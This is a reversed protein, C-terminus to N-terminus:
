ARLVRLPLEPLLADFEARVANQEGMLEVHHGSRLHIHVNCTAQPDASACDYFGAGTNPAIELRVQPSSASMRVWDEYRLPTADPVAITVNIRANGRSYSRRVFLPDVVLPGAVFDGARDPLAAALTQSPNGGDLAPAGAARLSASSEAAARSRSHTSSERNACGLIPVGVAFLLISAPVRM